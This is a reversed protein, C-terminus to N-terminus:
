IVTRFLVVGQGPFRLSCIRLSAASLVRLASGFRRVKRTPLLSCIQDDASLPTTPPLRCPVSRRHM